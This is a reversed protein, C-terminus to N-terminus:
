HCPAYRVNGDEMTLIGADFRIQPPDAALLAITKHRAAISARNYWAVGKQVMGARFMALTAGVVRNHGPDVPHPEGEGVQRNLWEHFREGEAEIWAARVSWEQLTLSWISVPVLAGRFRCEPLTDFQWRFGMRETLSKAAEHGAPVRTLIEVADTATFMYRSGHEAFSRAWAGRGEPVVATHVEYIGADYKLCVFCGFEGLLCVNNPNAVTASVDVEGEAMEAIWPRVVPHNLIRNVAAADTTREIM